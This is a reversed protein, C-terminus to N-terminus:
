MMPIIREYKKDEVIQRVREVLENWLAEDEDDRPSNHSSTVATVTFEQRNYGM